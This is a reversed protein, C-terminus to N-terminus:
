ICANWGNWQKSSYLVRCKNTFVSQILFGSLIVDLASCNVRYDMHLQSSVYGINKKIDWITEGSGRQRGFLHVYNAYAQPHDGTIISLM